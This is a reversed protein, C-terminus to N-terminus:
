DRREIISVPDLNRLQWIVTSAAFLGVIIPIPITFQLARWNLVSLAMGRPGFIFQNLLAYILQSFLIGFVWAIVTLTLSEVLARRIVFARSYGIGLLLGFENMRDLFYIMNLLGVLLSLVVMVISNIAWVIADMSAFDRQYREMEASYTFARVLQDNLGRLDNEMEAQGQRRPIALLSRAYWKFESRREVYDLSALSLVIPGRLVGVIELKGALWEQDDKEPDLVDGIKLGRGKTLAEHLTVEATGPRPLRGEVLELNFRDLIIPYVSADVAYIHATTEGSLTPLYTSLRIDPYLAEVNPDRRLDGEISADVTNHGKIYSPSIQAAEQYVQVKQLNADIITGTLVGTLSIGFVALALVAFVPALKMKNRLFYTLVSLPKM